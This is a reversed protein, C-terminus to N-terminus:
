IIYPKTTCINISTFRQNAGLNVTTLYEASMPTLNTTFIDNYMGMNNASLSNELWNKPVDYINWTQKHTLFLDRIAKVEVPYIANIEHNETNNYQGQRAKLLEAKAVPNGESYAKVVQCQKIVLQPLEPSWYFLEHSQYKAQVESQATSFLPEFNFTFIDKFQIYYQGNSNIRVAPKDCGQIHGVSIGKAYLSNWVPDLVAIAIKPIDNCSMNSLSTHYQAALSDNSLFARTHEELDIFRIKTRKDTVYKNIFPLAAYELESYINDSRRDTDDNKNSLSGPRMMVIEDLLINNSVFTYLINASDVGGSFFLSVFDYKDRIQQARQRYLEPLSTEIPISWDIAQFVADNFWWQLKLNLASAVQLAEAKNIFLRNGVQYCGRNRSKSLLM